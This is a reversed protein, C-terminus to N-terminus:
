TTYGDARQVARWITPSSFGVRRKTYWIAHPTARLRFPKFRDAIYLLRDTVADIFSRASNELLLPRILPLATSDAISPVNFSSASGFTNLCGYALDTRCIESNIVYVAM